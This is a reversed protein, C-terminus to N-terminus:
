RYKEYYGTSHKEIVKNTKSLIHLIEHTCVYMGFSIRAVCPLSYTYKNKNMMKKQNTRKINYSQTM